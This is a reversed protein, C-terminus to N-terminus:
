VVSRLMLRTEFEAIQTQVIEAHVNHCITDHAVKKVNQHPHFDTAPYAIHGEIWPAFEEENQLQCEETASTRFSSVCRRLAKGLTSFANSVQRSQLLASPRPTRKNIMAHKVNQLAAAKNNDGDSKIFVRNNNNKSNANKQRRRFSPSSNGCIPSVNNISATCCKKSKVARDSPQANTDSADDNAFTSVDPERNQHRNLEMQAQQEFDKQRRTSDRQETDFMKHWEKSRNHAVPKGFDKQPPFSCHFIPRGFLENQLKQDSTKVPMMMACTMTNGNNDSIENISLCHHNAAVISRVIM